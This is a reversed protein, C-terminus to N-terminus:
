VSKEQWNYGGDPRLEPKMGAVCRAWPVPHREQLFKAFPLGVEEFRLEGPTHMMYLAEASPVWRAQLTHQDPKTKLTPLVRTAYTYAYAICTGLELHVEEGIVKWLYPTLVVGAEESLERSAASCGINGGDGPEVKGGPWSWKGSKEQVLLIYSRNDQLMNCTVLMKVYRPTDPSTSYALRSVPRSAQCARCPCSSCIHDWWKRHAIADQTLAHYSPSILIGGTPTRLLVRRRLDDVRGLRAGM